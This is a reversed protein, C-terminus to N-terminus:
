QVGKNSNKYFYYKRTYDKTIEQIIPSFLLIYVEDNGWYEKVIRVWLLIEDSGELSDDDFCEMMELSRKSYSLVVGKSKLM